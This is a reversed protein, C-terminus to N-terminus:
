KAHWVYGNDVDVPVRKQSKGKLVVMKTQRSSAMSLASAAQADSYDTVPKGDIEVISDGPVLGARGAPSREIVELISLESGKLEYLPIGVGRHAEPQMVQFNLQTKGELMVRADAGPLATPPLGRGKWIGVPNSIGSDKDWLEIRIEKHSPLWLNETVPFKFQPKIQDKTVASEFILEDARYIRVFTDPGTGDDDWAAGSRQVSPIDASTFRIRWVDDPSSISNGAAKVVSLATSKRPYACGAGVISVLLLILCHRYMIILAECSILVASILRGPAESVIRLSNRYDLTRNILERM